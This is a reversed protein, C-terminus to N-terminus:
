IQCKEKENQYIPLSAAKLREAGEKGVSKYDITAWLHMLLAKAFEDSTLHGAYVSHTLDNSYTSAPDFAGKVFTWKRSRDDNDSHCATYWWVRDAGRDLVAIVKVFSGAHLICGKKETALMPFHKIPLFGYATPDFKYNEDPEFM